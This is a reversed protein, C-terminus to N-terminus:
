LTNLISFSQDSPPALHFALNDGSTIVIWRCPLGDLKVRFQFNWGAPPALLFTLPDDLEKPNTRQPGHVDAGFKVAIRGIDTSISLHHILCAFVPHLTVFAYNTGVLTWFRESVSIFPRLRVIHCTTRRDRCWHSRRQFRVSVSLKM